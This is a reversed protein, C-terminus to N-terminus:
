GRLLERRENSAALSRQRRGPGRGTSSAASPRHFTRPGTMNEPQSPPTPSAPTSPRSSIAGPARSRQAPPSRPPSPPISSPSHPRSSAPTPRPSSSPSGDAKPPSAPRPPLRRHGSRVSGRAGHPGPPRLLGGRLRREPLSGEPFVGDRPRLFRARRPARQRGEYRAALFSPLDDFGYAARMEEVSGYPLDLGNRAALEFKLEPELTGEIHLHLEAKPLGEIFSALESM